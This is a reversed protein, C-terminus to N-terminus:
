SVVKGGSVFCGIATVKRTLTPYCGLEGFVCVLRNNELFSHAFVFRSVLLFYYM